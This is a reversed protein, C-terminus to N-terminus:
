EQFHGKWRLLIVLTTALSSKHLELRLISRCCTGVIWSICSTWGKRGDRPTQPHTLVTQAGPGSRINGKWVAQLSFLETRRFTVLPTNRATACCQMSGSSRIHVWSRTAGTGTRCLQRSHCTAGTRTTTGLVLTICKKAASTSPSPPFRALYFTQGVSMQPSLCPRTSPRTRAAPSTALHPRSM